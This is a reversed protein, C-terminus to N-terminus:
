RAEASAKRQRRWASLAAGAGAVEDPLAHGYRRLVLGADTHGLLAAVAHSSLGAALAHTAYAHRLDHVRPLPQQVGAERCAQKFEGYTAKARLEASAGETYVRARFCARRFARHAPVPSLAEGEPGGFVLVGEPPRGTALRHRRLRVVDEPALPVTRRSAKSKPVVVPYMGDAGRVRDLSRRVHVASSDLDVGERGWTLALLEGLRLGTGLALAVLPGGFSRALRTDDAEAAALIASCEEPTLIRPPREGEHAVPVRVGACPIAELEGSREAVRLAVRLATLAKRAHEPTRRAALEDVLRQVDGRTLTSV